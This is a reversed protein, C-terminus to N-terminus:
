REYEWKDHLNILIVYIIFLTFGPDLFTLNTTPLIVLTQSM